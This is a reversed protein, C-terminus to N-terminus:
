SVRIKYKMCKVCIYYLARANCHERLPKPQIQFKLIERGREVPGIAAAIEGNLATGFSQGKHSSIKSNFHGLFLLFSAFDLQFNRGRGDRTKADKHATDRRTTFSSTFKYIIYQKLKIKGCRAREGKTHECTPSFQSFERFNIACLKEDSANHAAENISFSNCERRPVKEIEIIFAIFFQVQYGFSYFLLICKWQVSILSYKLSINRLCLECTGIACVSSPM